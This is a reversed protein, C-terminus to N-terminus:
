EMGALERLTRLNIVDWEEQRDGVELTGKPTELYMPHKAFRPDNVFFGFPERGIKGFGIAEHRDVRSGLERVSDNLHFAALRDLGIISDFEAMMKDYEKPTAFTYGAAFVHCTDLCVGIRDPYQCRTIIEALHEFRWGLNTGQGATTELLIKPGKPASKLVLDLSEAILALGSEETGETYSGPHMVVNAIGLKKARELEDVLAAVSKSRLDGKPSAVNILYSDHILPSELGTTELAVRFADAAADDIPKASWQNSNKSFIQITDFLHTSAAYVAEDFGSAISEHVGFLPM